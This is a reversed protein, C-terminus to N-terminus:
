RNGKARKLIDNKRLETMKKVCELAEAGPNDFRFISACVPEFEKGFITRRGAPNSESGCHGFDVHRWAIEKTHDDIPADEYWNTACESDDSWIVWGEPETKDQAPSGNLLVFSVYEGQVKVAWYCKDKWYNDKFRVPPMDNARLYAAFELAYKQAEGTLLKRIYREM